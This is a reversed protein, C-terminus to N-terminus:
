TRLRRVTKGDPIRISEIESTDKDFSVKLRGEPICWFKRLKLEFRDISVPRYSIEWAPDAADGDSPVMQEVGRCKISMILPPEEDTDLRVKVKLAEQPEGPLVGLRDRYPELAARIFEICSAFKKSTEMAFLQTLYKDKLKGDRFKGENNFYAEYFMGNLIHVSWEDPIRALERRLNNMIDKARNEDGEACQYINRGLVFAQDATWQSWKLKTFVKEIAPSQKYWDCSRLARIIGTVPNDSPMPFDVDALSSEAYQFQAYSESAMASQRGREKTQASERGMERPRQNESLTPPFIASIRVHSFPLELKQGKITRLEVDGEQFAVHFGESVRETKEVTAGPLHIKLAQV